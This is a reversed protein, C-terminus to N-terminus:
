PAIMKLDVHLDGIPTGPLEVHVFALSVQSAGNITTIATPYVALMSTDQLIAADSPADIGVGAGLNLNINPLGHDEEIGIV